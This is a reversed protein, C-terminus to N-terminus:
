PECAGEARHRALAKVVAGRSVGERRAIERQSMGAERAAVIRADRDSVRARRAEGSRRGREAHVESIEPRPPEGAVTRPPPEPGAREPAAPAGPTAPTLLDPNWRLVHSVREPPLSALWRRVALAHLNRTFPSDYDPNRM